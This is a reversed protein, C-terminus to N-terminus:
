LLMWALGGFLIFIFLALTAGDRLIVFHRSPHLCSIPYIPDHLSLGHRHGLFRLLVVRSRAVGQVRIREVTPLQYVHQGCEQWYAKVFASNFIEKDLRRLIMALECKLLYQHDLACLLNTLTHQYRRSKAGREFRLM